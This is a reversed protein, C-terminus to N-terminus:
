ILTTEDDEKIIVQKIQALKGVGESQDYDEGIFFSNLGGDTGGALSANVAKAKTRVTEVAAAASDVGKVTVLREYDTNTYGLTMKVSYDKSM